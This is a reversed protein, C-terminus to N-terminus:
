VGFLRRAAEVIGDHDNDAVVIDAIAKVEPTANGMAIACGAAKLADLDNPADGAVAMDSLPIGLEHSLAELGKAKSIGEASCELSTTESDALRVGLGEVRRRTRERAAADTHYVLVKVIGEPHEEIYGALDDEFHYVAQYMSQYVGMHFTDMHDADKKRCICADPYFLVCMAQEEKAAQVIKSAIPAAIPHMALTRKEEFDYTVAGSAIIGYRIPGATGGLSWLAEVANRGTCLSLAVGKEHLRKLAAWTSSSVTKESTLLTGDMDLALLRLGM